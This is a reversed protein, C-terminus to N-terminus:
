AVAHRRAASVGALVFALVTVLSGVVTTMPGDATFSGDTVFATGTEILQEVFAVIAVVGVWMPIRRGDRAAVVIAGLTLVTFGVLMPGWYAAVDLLARATSPDISGPRRAIGAVFWYQAVTLIGVGLAGFVFVRGALGSIVDRMLVAYIAFLPTALTALWVSLRVAGGHQSMWDVIQTGSDDAGPPNGLAVVAAGYLVVFGITSGLLARSRDM